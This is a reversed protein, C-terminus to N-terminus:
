KLILLFDYYRKYESIYDLLKDDGTLAHNCKLEDHSHQQILPKNGSLLEKM